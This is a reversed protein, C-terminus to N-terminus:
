AQHMLVGPQATSVPIEKQKWKPPDCRRGVPRFIVLPGDTTLPGWLCEVVLDHHTVKAVEALATDIMQKFWGPTRSWVGASMQVRQDFSAAPKGRRVRAEQIGAAVLM